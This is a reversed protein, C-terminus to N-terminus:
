AGEDQKEVKQGKPPDVQLAVLGVTANVLNSNGDAASVQVLTVALRNAPAELDTLFGAIGPFPGELSVAMPLETVTGIKSTRQPRFAVVNVGYKQALVNVRAMAQPGVQPAPVNWLLRASRAEMQTLRERVDKTTLRTQFDQDRYTKQMGASSPKPVLLM